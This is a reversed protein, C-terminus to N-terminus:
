DEYVDDDSSYEEDDQYEEDNYSDDQEEEDESPEEEESVTQHAYESISQIRSWLPSVTFAVVTILFIM